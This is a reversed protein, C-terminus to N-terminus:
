FAWAEAFGSSDREVFRVVSKRFDVFVRYVLYHWMFFLVELVKDSGSVDRENYGRM